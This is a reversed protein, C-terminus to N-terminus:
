PTVKVTSAEKQTKAGAGADAPQGAPLAVAPPILGNAGRPSDYANGNADFYYMPVDGKVLIYSIPIETTVIEPKTDFPIYIMVQATIRVFVTVLLMNIGSDERRTGLDVQPAGASEFRIPISPGFSSLIASDFAQGIPIRETLHVRDNLTKKVIQVVQSTIKMHEAYNLMFGTVDGSYNTRWDVLPELEARHAIQSSIAENIAETAIQKVRIQAVSMLPEKLNHEIFIFSQMTMLLTIIMTILFITKRSFPKQSQSRFRRRRWPM